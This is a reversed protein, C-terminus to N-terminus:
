RLHDLAEDLSCIQLKGQDYAVLRREAEENWVANMAPTLHELSGLLRDAIPFRERAKLPMAMELTEQAGM